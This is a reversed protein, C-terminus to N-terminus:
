RQKSYPAKEYMALFIKTVVDDDGGIWREDGVCAILKEKGADIMEKTVVFDLAGAQRRECDCM